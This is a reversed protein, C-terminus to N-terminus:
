KPAPRSDLKQRNLWKWLLPLVISYQKLLAGNHAAENERRMCSFEHMAKRVDSTTVRKRDAIFVVLWATRRTSRTTVSHLPRCHNRCCEWDVTTGFRDVSAAVALSTRHNAATSFWRWRYGTIETSTRAACNSSPIQKSSFLSTAMAMTTSQKSHLCFSSETM